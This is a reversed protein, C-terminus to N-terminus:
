DPPVPRPTAEEWRTGLDELLGLGEDQWTFRGEHICLGFDAQGAQLKPMIDSFVSHEVRTSELYFLDLLLKATTHEGPCLTLQMKDTPQLGSYKALLLPILGFGPASSSPLVFVEDSLLLAAHFSTKAVDFQGKSFTTM